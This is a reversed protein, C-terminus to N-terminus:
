LSNLFFKGNGNNFVFTLQNAALDVMWWPPTPFSTMNDSTSMKLGPPITWGNGANYHIWATPWPAQFYITVYGAGKYVKSNVTLLFPALLFFWM